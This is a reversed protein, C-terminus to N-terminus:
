FLHRRFKVQGVYVVRLSRSNDEDGRHGSVRVPQCLGNPCVESVNQRFVSVFTCHMLMLHYSLCSVSYIVGVLYRGSAFSKKVYNKCFLIRSTVILFLILQQVVNYLFNSQNKLNSLIANKYTADRNSRETIMLTQGVKSVCVTYSVASIQSLESTLVITSSRNLCARHKGPTLSRKLTTRWYSV